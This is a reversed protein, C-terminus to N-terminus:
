VKKGANYISEQLGLRQEHKLLTSAQKSVKTKTSTANVMNGGSSLLGRKAGPATSNLGALPNYSTAGTARMGMRYGGWGVAGNFAGAKAGAWFDGGQAAEATGGIAGGAVAGRMAHGAAVGLVTQDKGISGRINNMGWSSLAGTKASLGDQAWGDKTSVSRPGLDGPARTGGKPSRPMKTGKPAPLGLMGGGGGGSSPPPTTGGGRITPPAGGAGGRNILSSSMGQVRPDQSWRNYNARERPNLKGLGGVKSARESLGLLGDTIQNINRKVM